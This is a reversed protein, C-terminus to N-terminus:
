ELELARFQEPTGNIPLPARLEPPAAFTGPEYDEYLWCYTFCQYTVIQGQDNAFPYCEFGSPCEANTTCNRACYGNLCENGAGCDEVETSSRCPDCYTGGADYCEGTAVNCFEKYGCDIATDECDELVCEQTELDCAYGTRCDGDNQCGPVCDRAATCYHEIPCQQSTSCGPTECFGAVCQEGFECPRTADCEYRPGCAWALLLPLTSVGGIAASRAVTVPSRLATV